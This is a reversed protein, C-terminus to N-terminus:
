LNGTRYPKMLEHETKATRLAALTGPWWDGDVHKQEPAITIFRHLM